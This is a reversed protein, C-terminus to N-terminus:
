LQTWCKMAEGTAELGKQREKGKCGWSQDFVGLRLVVILLLSEFNTTIPFSILKTKHM